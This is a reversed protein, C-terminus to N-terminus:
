CSSAKLQEMQTEYDSWLVARGLSGDSEGGARGEYSVWLGLETIGQESGAFRPIHPRQLVEQTHWLAPAQWSVALIPLACLGQIHGAGQEVLGHILAAAGQKMHCCPCPLSRSHAQQQLRPRVRGEPVAAPCGATSSCLGVTPAWCSM